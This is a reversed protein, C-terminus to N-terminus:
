WRGGLWLELEGGGMMKIAVPCETLMREFIYWILYLNVYFAKYRVRTKALKTLNTSDLQWGSDWIRTLVAPVDLWFSEYMESKRELLRRISAERLSKTCRKGSVFQKAFMKVMRERWWLCEALVTRPTEGNNECGERIDKIIRRAM